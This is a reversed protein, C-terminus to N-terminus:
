RLLLFSGEKKGNLLLEAGTPGSGKVKWFYVGNPQGVGNTSGDWGQSIADSVSETAYVINGERNFIKFSFGTVRQLGYVKLQDNSQDSNPTFLSPIFGSLEVYIMVTGSTQCGISDTGTVTYQVDAIPSAVPNSIDPNSLNESPTWSYQEAGSAQLNVKTGLAIRISSPEVTLHPKSLKVSYEKLIYCGEDNSYGGTVVDDNQIKYQISSGNGLTEHEKNQWTVNSWEAPVSLPLVAGDCAVVHETISKLTDGIMVPFTKVTSCNKFDPLFYFITDQQNVDTEMESGQGLYGKAFSFWLAQSPAALKFPEESCVKLTEEILSVCEAGSGVCVGGAGAHLSNDVSQISYNIPEGALNRLLKFNVVGNNGHSATLRKENVLDFESGQLPTTGELYLDYTVSGTPTHDDLAKEWFLFLNNYVPVAVAHLPRNPHSNKESENNELIVIAWHNTEVLQILDLDGDHDLDAFGQQRVNHHPIAEVLGDNFKIINITDNEVNLAFVNEDVTGDSNFDSWFTSIVKLSNGPEDISYGVNTKKFAYYGSGGNDFIGHLVIDMFGNADVDAVVSTALIKREIVPLFSNNSQFYVMSFVTDTLQSRGSLFLDTLGDNNFDNIEVSRLLVQLTDHETTWMTENEQKLTQTFFSGNDKKGSVICEKRGDNNLDAFRILDFAPIGLAVMEFNFSGTNQYLITRKEVGEVVSFILDLQNDNNYDHIIFGTFFPIALTKLSLVPANTTDGKIYMLFNEHDQNEVVLLLDLLGDNDLDARESLATVISDPLAIEHSKEFNQASVASYFGALIFCIILRM